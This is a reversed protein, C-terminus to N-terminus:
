AYLDAKVFSVAAADKASLIPKGATPWDIALDPDDWRIAREYKPAYYDTTLYVFEAVESLVVFGHAFGEPVWFQRKNEASMTIGVWRGFTPSSKRVDVAVDFVEGVIVRVLKGQAQRIQYHLGRLVNKTSRSHNEQVFETQLGTKECWQRRNFSEFFFGREDVFVRPEIILVEPIATQIVKM